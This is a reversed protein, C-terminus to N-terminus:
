GSPQATTSVLQNQLGAGKSASCCRQRRFVKLVEHRPILM